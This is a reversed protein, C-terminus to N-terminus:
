AEAHTSRLTGDPTATATAYDAAATATPQNGDDPLSTRLAAIFRKSQGITLAVTDTVQDFHQVVTVLSTLNSEPVKTTLSRTVVGAIPTHKVTVNVDATADQNCSAMEVVCSAMAAVSATSPDSGSGAPGHLLEMEYVLVSRMGRHAFWRQELIAGGCGPLRTRNFFTANELDLASGAYEAAKGGAGTVFVSHVGPLAARQTKTGVGSYVGAVRVVGNAVRNVSGSGSGSRASTSTSTGSRGHRRGQLADDRALEDGGCNSPFCGLTAGVYGNGINPYLPMRGM